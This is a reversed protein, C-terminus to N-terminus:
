VHLNTITCNQFGQPIRFINEDFSKKQKKKHIRLPITMGFLITVVHFNVVVFVFIKFNLLTMNIKLIEIM